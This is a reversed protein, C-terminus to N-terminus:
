GKLPSRSSRRLFAALGLLGSGMLFMSTPEPVSSIEVVYALSGGGGTGPPPTFQDTIEFKTPTLFGAINNDTGPAPPGNCNDGNCDIGTMALFVSGDMPAFSLLTLTTGSLIAAGCSTTSGLGGTGVLLSVGDTNIDLTGTSGVLSACEGTTTVTNSLLTVNYQQILSARAPSVAIVCFLGLLAMVKLWDAHRVLKRSRQTM